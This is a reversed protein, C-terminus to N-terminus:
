RESLYINANMTLYLFNTRLVLYFGSSLKKEMVEKIIGKVFACFYKEEDVLAGCLFAAM